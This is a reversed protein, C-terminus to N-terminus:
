LFREESKLSINNNKCYGRFIIITIISDIAVAIGFMLATSILTPKYIGLLYLVFVTGYYIVNVILSQYLMLDTRGLGYFISDVVNNYAFIIYFGFLLLSLFFVENANEIGMVNTFFPKWFPVSIIWVIIIITTVTFYGVTKDGIANKDEGCDRKILEGLSLIPLLLWGWIFSNVVWYTGQEGVMNIMRIIMFMYSLNRILSEMGSVTSIKVFNKFWFFKMKSKSFINIGSKKLLIVLIICLAINTLINSIAVGIVGINLSIPLSSLLLTDLLVTLCLKTVLVIYINSKKGITILVVISIKLLIEFIKSISELRVFSVTIDILLTDQAMFLILPETFIILVIALITNIGFAAALGTKTRNELEKKNRIAAGTFFFLPLIIADTMVEYILNVWSLQGAINFSFDSPLDALLFIRVTSYITPLFGMVLLAFYLKYNIKKLSKQTNQFFM